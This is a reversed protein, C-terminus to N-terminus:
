KKGKLLDLVPTSIGAPLTKLYAVQEKKTKADLKKVYGVANEVSFPINIRDKFARGLFNGIVADFKNKKAWQAINRSVNVFKNARESAIKNKLDLVGIQKEGINETKMFTAIAKNLDTHKSTAVYAPNNVGNEESIALVLKGSKSIRCMEVPIQPANKNTWKTKVLAATKKKNNVLGGVSLIAIKM